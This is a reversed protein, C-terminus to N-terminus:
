KWPFVQGNMITEWFAEVIGALGLLPWLIWLVWHEWRWDDFGVLNDIAYATPPLGCLYLIGIIWFTVGM